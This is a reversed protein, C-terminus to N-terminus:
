RSSSRRWRQRRSTSSGSIRRTAARCPLAYGRRCAVFAKAGDGRSLTLGHPAVCVLLKDPEPTGFAEITKPDVLAITSRRADINPTTAAAAKLDFHSVVLRHGDDSLAIEGPNADVRQEGVARLDDLALVQVWGAVNSAGHSHQGAAEASGPYSLVAFALGRGRDVVVQHPGDVNVPDRGIPATGIVAGRELDILALTDAGSNPVLAFAGDPLVLKTRLNPYPAAGEYRDWAPEPAKKGQKCAGLALVSAIAIALTARSARERPGEFM